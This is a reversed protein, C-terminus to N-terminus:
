MIRGYLGTEDLRRDILEAIKRNGAGRLHIGDEWFLSELERQPLQDFARHLDVLLANEGAAVERVVQAYRRHVPVLDELRTLWRTGLYAPEEGLQHSTPATLLIPFIDNDRAIRVMAHLNDRFDEPSVRPRGREAFRERYALLGLNVWHVTRLSSVLAWPRPDDDLQLLGAADKDQLGFHEWHDNWGFYVTIARPEIPLVDRQLQRLGSLSSWGTVGLTIWTLEREPHRQAVIRQLQNEYGGNTCSDGLFVISPRSARAAAVRDSYGPPVWLLDTDTAFDREIGIPDPYGFEVRPPLLTFEPGFTRLGLEVFALLIVTTLANYAVLRLAQRARAASANM